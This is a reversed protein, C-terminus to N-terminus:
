KLELFNNNRLLRYQKRAQNIFISNANKLLLEEYKEKAKINDTLANEYIQAQYFLADDYLIDYYYQECITNLANLAQNYEKKEIFVDSKKLLVEDLLTHGPFTNELVTLTELCDQYQKQEFLLESKAYLLLAADTTDLNLNDGILLSLKMANNAILKSTSLKLAKLQTQAWEFDGNYYTVVSAGLGVAAVFLCGTQTAIMFGAICSAILKKIKM